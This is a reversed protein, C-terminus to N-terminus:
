ISILIFYLFNDTENEILFKSIIRTSMSMTYFLKVLVGTSRYGSVRTPTGSKKFLLM